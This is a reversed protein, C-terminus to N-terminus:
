ADRTGGHERSPPAAEGAAVLSLRTFIPSIAEFVVTAGIVVPLLVGALEPFQQSAVLALGIAVGAQPLLAPGLWKRLTPTAGARAGGVRVGVFRGATRLAIYGLGIWGVAGLAQVQLSAGSLM